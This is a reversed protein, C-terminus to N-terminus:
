EYIRYNDPELVLSFGLPSAKVFYIENLGPQKFRVMALEVADSFRKQAM